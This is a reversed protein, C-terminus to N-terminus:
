VNGSKNMSFDILGQGQSRLEAWQKVLSSVASDISNKIKLANKLTGLKVIHEFRPLGLGGCVTSAYFFGTATSPVQHLIAMIEQRVESDLLKLVSDSPPSLLLHYIYHPLIYKVILEIKQCPKLSILDSEELWV